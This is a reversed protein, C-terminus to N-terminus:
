GRMRRSAAWAGPGPALPQRLAHARSSWQDIPPEVREVGREHQEALVASIVAHAAALEVETPSGALVTVRPVTASEASVASEDGTM